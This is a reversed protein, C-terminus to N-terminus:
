GGARTRAARCAPCPLWGRGTDVMGHDCGACGPHEWPHRYAPFPEDDAMGRAQRIRWMIEPIVDLSYHLRTAEARAARKPAEAPNHAVSGASRPRAPVEPDGARSHAEQASM